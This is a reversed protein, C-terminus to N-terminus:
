GGNGFQKRLKAVAMSLMQRSSAPTIGLRLSIENHDLDQLYKMSIISPLYKFIKQSDIEKEDPTWDSPNYKLGKGFFSAFENRCKFQSKIARKHGLSVNKAIKAIWSIFKNFTRYTFKGANKYIRLFADQAADEAQTKNGLVNYCIKYIFPSKERIFMNWEDEAWESPHKWENRLRDCFPKQNEM